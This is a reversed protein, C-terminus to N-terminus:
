KNNKGSLRQLEAFKTSGVGHGGGSFTSSFCKRFKDQEEKTISFQKRGMEVISSVEREIDKNIEEVNDTLEAVRKASQILESSDDNFDKRENDEEILLDEMDDSSDESEEPVEILM